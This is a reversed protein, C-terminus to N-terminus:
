RDAPYARAAVRRARDLIEAEVEPREAVTADIPGGFLLAAVASAFALAADAPQDADRRVVLDVVREGAFPRGARGPDAQPVDALPAPAGLLARVESRVVPLELHAAETPPEREATAARRREIGSLARTRRPPADAAVDAPAAGATPLTVEADVV